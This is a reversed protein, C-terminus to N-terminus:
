DKKKKDKKKDKDKEKEKHKKKKDKGETQEAARLILNRAVTQTGTHEYYNTSMDLFAALYDLKSDATNMFQQLHGLVNEQTLGRSAVFNSMWGNVSAFSEGIFGLKGATTGGPIASNISQYTTNGELQSPNVQSLISQAKLIFNPGLPILGDVAVLAAMRMISENHYNGLSTRFAEISTPIGHLRCFAILEVVLKLSLDIAQVTDAKPTLQNLFNLFSIKEGVKNALAAAGIASDARDITQYLWLTQQYSQTPDNYLAIAREGIEEILGKDTVGTVARITNEFEVLNQWEGPVVYDLSRLMYVTMSSSPLNDVLRSISQNM